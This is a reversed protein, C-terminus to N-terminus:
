NLNIGNDIIIERANGESYNIRVRICDEPMEQEANEAWEIVTIGKGYLYEQLGLEASRDPKVRFLDIHYFMLSGRHESIIIFSPSTIEREDIGFASAIGKVMTTKGSGLEGYLCVVNGARLRKGLELGIKKTEAESQSRLM